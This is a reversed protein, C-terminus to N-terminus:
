SQNKKKCLYDEVEEIETTIAGSLEIKEKFMGLHKGILELARIKDCLRIEITEGVQSRDEGYGEYLENTKITTIASATEEDLEDIGKVSGNDRFLNKANVFGIKALEKLVRDQTIETRREREKMRQEIYTQINTNTLLKSANTRATNDTKCSKFVVKYARTANLDILYEDCFLRQKETLKM